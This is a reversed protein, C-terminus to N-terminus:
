PRKQLTKRVVSPSVIEIMFVEAIKIKVNQHGIRWKCPIYFIRPYKMLELQGTFFPTLPMILHAAVNQKNLTIIKSKGVEEIILLDKILSMTRYFSAYPLSLEKSLGHMTYKKNPHKGLYNIIKHQNDM